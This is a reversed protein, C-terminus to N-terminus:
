SNVRGLKLQKSFAVISGGIIDDCLDKVTDIYYMRTWLHYGAINFYIEFGEWVLGFILVGIIIIIRPYRIKPINMRVIATLFLGIGIGGLIHLGIDYAPIQMYWGHLGFIHGYLVATLIILAFAYTLM